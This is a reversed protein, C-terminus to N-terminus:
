AFLYADMAQTSFSFSHHIRRPPVGATAAGLSVFVPMLHEETPHSHVAHPARRRYDLVGDDDRATLRDHMWEAFERAWDPVPRRGARDLDRQNHTMTGSGILLVGRERLPALSRGIRFHDAPTGHAVLSLQTVPIEAGPYLLRLPAWCGHDFGRTPAIQADFGDRSLLQLAHASADLAGKAPYRCTYMERHPFGPGYDHITGPWAAGTLCAATEMWHASVVLIADPRPWLAAAKRLFGHVPHHAEFALVPSGHSLFLTPLLTM